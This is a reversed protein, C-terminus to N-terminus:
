THFQPSLADLTQASLSTPHPAVHASQVRVNARSCAHDTCRCGFPAFTAVALIVSNATRRKRRSACLHSKWVVGEVKAHPISCGCRSSCYSGHIEKTSMSGEDRRGPERSELRYVLDRGLLACIGLAQVPRILQCGSWTSKHREARKRTALRRGEL